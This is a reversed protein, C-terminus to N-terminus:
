TRGVSPPRFYKDYKKNLQDFKGASCSSKQSSCSHQHKAPKSSCSPVAPPVEKRTVGSSRGINIPALLRQLQDSSCHSCPPPAEEMKLLFEHESGCDKCQYLYLPM